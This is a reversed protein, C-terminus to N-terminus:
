GEGQQESIIKATWYFIAATALGMILGAPLWGVSFFALTAATGIVIDTM